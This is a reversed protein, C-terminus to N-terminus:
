CFYYPIYNRSQNLQIHDEIVHQIEKALFSKIEFNLCFHLDVKKFAAGVFLLSTSPHANFLYAIVKASCLICQMYVFSIQNEM